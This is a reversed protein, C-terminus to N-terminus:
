KRLVLGASSRVQILQAQLDLAETISNSGYMLEDVYFDKYDLKSALPFSHEQISFQQLCKVALHQESATDYTIRRLRFNQIPKFTFGTLSNESDKLIIQRCMKEIHRAM